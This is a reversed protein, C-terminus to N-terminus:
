QAADTAIYSRKNMLGLGLDKSATGLVVKSLCITSQM